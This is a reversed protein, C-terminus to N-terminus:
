KDISYKYVNYTDIIKSIYRKKIQSRADYIETSVTLAFSNSSATILVVITCIADLIDRREV